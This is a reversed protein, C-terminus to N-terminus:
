IIQKIHNIICKDKRLIIEIVDFRIYVDELKKIYIYYEAVKLIHKIKRRNVAECPSGYKRNTRTKVEVFVLEKEDKAIIDIEGLKTRFNKDIIEYNNVVLYESAINEGKKGFETKYYM